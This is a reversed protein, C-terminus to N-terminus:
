VYFICKIINKLSLFKCLLLLNYIFFNKELFLENYM